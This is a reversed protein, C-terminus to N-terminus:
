LTYSLNFTLMKWYAISREVKVHRLEKERLIYHLFQEVHACIDSVVFTYMYLCTCVTFALRERERKFHSPKSSRCFQLALSIVLSLFFTVLGKLFVPM